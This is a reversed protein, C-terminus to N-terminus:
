TKLLIIDGLQTSADESCLHRGDEKKGQMPGPHGDTSRTPNTPPQGTFLDEWRGGGVATYANYSNPKLHAGPWDWGSQEHGQWGWPKMSLWMKGPARQSGKCRKDQVAAERLCCHEWLWLPFIALQLHKRESYTWPKFLMVAGLFVNPWYSGLNQVNERWRWVWGPSGTPVPGTPSPLESILGCHRHAGYMKGKTEPAM